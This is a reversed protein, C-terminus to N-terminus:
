WPYGFIQYPLPDPHRESADPQLTTQILSLIAKAELPAVDRLRVEPEVQRTERRATKGCLKEWFSLPRAAERVSYGDRLFFREAQQIEGERDTLIEIGSSQAPAFYPAAGPPSTIEPRSKIAQWRLSGDPMEERTCFEDSRHNHAPFSAQLKGVAIRGPRGDTDGTRGDIARLAENLRNIAKLADPSSLLSPKAAIHM